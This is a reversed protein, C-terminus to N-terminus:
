RANMFFWVGRLPCVVNKRVPIIHQINKYLSILRLLSCSYFSDRICMEEPRASRQGISGTNRCQRDTKRESSSVSRRGTSLALRKMNQNNNNGQVTQCPGTKNGYKGYLNERKISFVGRLTLGEHLSDIATYIGDIWLHRIIRGLLRLCGCQLLLLRGSYRLLCLGRRKRLFCNVACRDRICM